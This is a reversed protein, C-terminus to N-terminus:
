LVARARSVQVRIGRGKNYRKVNVVHQQGNALDVNSIDNNVEDRGIQWGVDLAVKIGGLCFVHINLSRNLLTSHVYINERTYIKSFKRFNAIKCPILNANKINNGYYHPMICTIKLNYINECINSFHSYRLFVYPTFIEVNM